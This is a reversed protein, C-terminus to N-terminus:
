RSKDRGDDKGEQGTVCQCTDKRKTQNKILHLCFHGNSLGQVMGRIHMQIPDCSDPRTANARDAWVM